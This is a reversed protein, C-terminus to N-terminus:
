ESFVNVFASQFYEMYWLMISSLTVMFIFFAIMIQAPMIVFFVQFQPMLRALLGSSLNILIGIVILPAALQVGVLFSKAVVETIIHSFETVPIEAGPTFLGYSNYIGGILMHHLNLAFMLNLAILDMFTGFVSGQSGQNPDFLTSQSLSSQMGIISGAVHLASTLIKAFTGILFGVAIESFVHVLMEIPTGPMPPINKITPAVVLSFTVALILRIRPSVYAHGFGPMIMLCTGVRCFILFVHFIEDTIYQSLDM